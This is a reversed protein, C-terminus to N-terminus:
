LLEIPMLSSGRVWVVLVDTPVTLFVTQALLRSKKQQWSTMLNQKAWLEVSSMLLKSSLVCFIKTSTIGRAKKAHRSFPGGISVFDEDLNKKMKWPTARKMQSLM